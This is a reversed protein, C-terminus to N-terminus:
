MMLAVLTTVMCDILRWSQLSLPAGTSLRNVASGDLLQMQFTCPSLVRQIILQQITELKGNTNNGWCWVGARDDVVCTGGDGAIVDVVDM